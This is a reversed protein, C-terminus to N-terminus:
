ASPEAGVMVKHATVAHVLLVQAVHNAHAFAPDGNAALDNALKTIPGWYRDEFEAYADPVSFDLDYIIDVVDDRAAMATNEWFSAGAVGHQGALILDEKLQDVTCETCGWAPAVAYAGEFLNALQEFMEQARWAPAYCMPRLTSRTKYASIVPWCYDPGIGLDAWHYVGLHQNTLEHYTKYLINVEHNHDYTEVELDFSAGDLELTEIQHVLAQAEQEPIGDGRDGANVKNDCYNYQWGCVILGQDRLRAINDHTVNRSAGWASNGDAVKVDFGDAAYKSVLPLLDRSDTPLNHVIILKSAFPNEPM